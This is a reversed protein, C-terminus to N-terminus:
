DAPPFVVRWDRAMDIVTWGQAPADDLARELRGESSDRDYAWERQADSHHLILGLRKGKGTTTWELMEYDGDSNGVAVLPRRGIHRQIGVPKGAKDNIFHLQADRMLAPGDQRRAYHLEPMSGIVNQPPIGYVDEAWARVFEIGGGSVIWTSFGNARLYGLLELMPQYVMGTYPRGSAPHRATEMWDLVIAEFEETSMGTQAAGALEILGHEGTAALAKMDNDLVAQFPQQSRWEPHEPALARIRDLIFLLQFYTPKESWLTGDNDFVAIRDDEPVFRASSPDAADGVFTLISQKVAGDNWSPLPDAEPAPQRAACAGLTLVFVFFITKVLVTKKPRM